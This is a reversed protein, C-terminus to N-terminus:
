ELRLALDLSPGARTTPNRTRVRAHLEYSLKAWYELEDMTCSDHSTSRLFQGPLVTLDTGAAAARRFLEAARQKDATANDSRSIQLMAISVNTAGSSGGLEGGTVLPVVCRRRSGALRRGVVPGRARWPSTIAGPSM